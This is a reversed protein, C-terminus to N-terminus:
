EGLGSAELAERQDLYIELKLVKGNRLEYLAGVEQSVPVGSGAGRGAMRYLALVRDGGADLFRSDELDFHFDEMVADVDERYRVMGDLGRYTKQEVVSRLEIEPDAMSLALDTDRANFAEVARRVIEVNEESM